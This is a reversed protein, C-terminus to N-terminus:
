QLVYATRTVENEKFDRWRVHATLLYLRGRPDQPAAEMEYSYSMNEWELKGRDTNEDLEHYNRLSKEKDAILNNILLGAEYRGALHALIGGSKFFLPIIFIVGSSLILVAFLTEILTLGEIGIRSGDKKM